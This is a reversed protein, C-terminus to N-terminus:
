WSKPPTRRIAEILSRACGRSNLEEQDRMLAAPSPAARLFGPLSCLASFFYIWSGHIIFAAVFGLLASSEAFAIRVFFRNRYAASLAADSECSLPREVLRVVVLNVLALAGIGIAWGVGDRESAFSSIFLLVFGYLVLASLFSLYLIRLTTIPDRRSRRQFLVAYPILFRLSPRWGPDEGWQEGTDGDM